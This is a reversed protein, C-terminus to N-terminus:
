KIYTFRDDTSDTVWTDYARVTPQIVPHRVADRHIQYIKDRDYVKLLINWFVKWHIPEKQPIFKYRTFERGKKVLSIIGADRMAKTIRSGCTTISDLLAVLEERTLVANERCLSNVTASLEKSQKEKDIKM